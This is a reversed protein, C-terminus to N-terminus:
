DWAPPSLPQRHADVVAQVDTAFDEDPTPSVGLREEYARALEIAADIPVGPGQAARIIAVPEHNREVVVEAGQRITDLVAGFDKTVEGESMHVQAMDEIM